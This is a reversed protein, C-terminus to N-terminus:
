RSPLSNTSNRRPLPTGSVVAGSLKIKGGPIAGIIHNDYNFNLIDEASRIKLKSNEATIMISDKQIKQSNLYTQYDKFNRNDDIEFRSININETNVSNSDNNSNSNSNNNNRNNNNSKLKFSSDFIKIDSKSSSPLINNIDCIVSNPITSLSSSKGIKQNNKSLLPLTRPAYRKLYTGARNATNM